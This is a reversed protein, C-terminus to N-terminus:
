SDLPEHAAAAAGAIRGFVVCETWGCGGNREVGHVGGLSEGAAYFRPIVEGHRDVVEANETINVGGCTYQRYYTRPVAYYPPTEIKWQLNASEQGFDEDIGADVFGNYREITEQLTAVPVGVVQALDDITACEVTSGEAFSDELDESDVDNAEIAQSDSISWWTDFGREYLETLRAYRFATVDSMEKWFRKGEPDIDIYTGHEELLLTGGYNIGSRQMRIQVFDMNMTDAGIDQAAILADGTVGDVGTNRGEPNLRSDYKACMAGNASFGGAALIVARKAQIATARDGEGVRVGLVDGELFGERIIASVPSNVSITINEHTAARDNMAAINAGGASFEQYVGDRHHRGKTMTGIWEGDVFTVNYLGQLHMGQPTEPVPVPTEYTGVRAWTVGMGKLWEYGELSNDAFIRTLKPDSRYAGLKRKETYYLDPSDNRFAEDTEGQREQVDTNPAGYNGGSLASNGGTIAMKELIVIAAEPDQEAAAIASAYGAAGGGIVIVDYSEDWTINSADNTGAAGTSCGALAGMGAIAVAGTTAGAIFKRRTIMVDRGKGRIDEVSEGTNNM